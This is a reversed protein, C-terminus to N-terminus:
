AHQLPSRASSSALSGGAGCTCRRWCFPAPSPSAGRARSRRSRCRASRRPRRGRHLGRGVREVVRGGAGRRTLGCGLGAALFALGLLPAMAPEALANAPVGLLPLYGFELWVIPATVLAAASRCRSASACAARFRRSRSRGRSGRCWRSSRRWRRSRCSSARTTCSTRTGPSCRSRRWSSRRGPMGFGGTLWALSALGGAIGARIVSPQPGVALM